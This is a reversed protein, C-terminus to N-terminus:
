QLTVLILIQGRKGKELSEMSKGLIAGKARDYDRVKMAFGPEGSTTLLDGAMIAEDTTVVNCYVRGALAVNNDYEGSGLKIGSGLGKAGAVVGAVKCDNAEMSIRLKGQNEPDICLVTGPEVPTKESVNFGEAYDLGTGLEVVINYSSDFIRLNGFVDVNGTIGYKFQVKANLTLQQIAPNDDFVGYILAKTRGDTLNLRVRNDIYLRNSETEWYGAANGIAVNNSGTLNFHLADKGIATNM